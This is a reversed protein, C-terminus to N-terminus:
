FNDFGNSNYLLYNLVFVNVRPEGLFGWQRQEISREVREELQKRQHANLQREEAIRSIQLRAAEPSIHPDLGSGSSYLMDPPVPVTDALGNERRFRTERVAVSDRWAASSWAYNSGAGPLTSYGCASPRPQFYGHSPARQALLKAGAVRGQVKVLDGQSATPCFLKASLTILGPYIGGCLLTLVFLLRIAMLGTHNTKM